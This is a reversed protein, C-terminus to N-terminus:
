VVGLRADAVYHFTIWGASDTVPGTGLNSSFPTGTIQDARTVLNYSQTGTTSASWYSAWTVDGSDTQNSGGGGSDHYVLNATVTASTNLTKTSWLVTSPVACKTQKFNFGFSRQYFLCPLASSGGTDVSAGQTFNLSDALTNLGTAVGPAYSREYYYQCERLVQDKTQPAPRTAIDGGVLSCYDLTVASALSLQNFSIVIAIFTATTKGTTATADWGNFSFETNSTTLTFHADGLSDRSVKNWTGNGVTPVGATLASVLSHYTAAKIDPLSADTTWYLNVYGNITGTSIAGKLAIANRQSLIERAQEVPLYQILAFQTAVAATTVLGKTTSSRSFTLSSDVSQFAITQDWVYNSTNVGTAFPAAITDGLPQAPNLPFDWGVLYSPIPKFELQPKYYHFLHDVQRDVTEQLFETQSSANQVSVLQVSTLKILSGLPLTIDLTSYGTPAADSSTVPTINITGQITSYLNNTTTSSTVIPFSSGNSQTYTLTLSLASSGTSAALVSGNVFGNAFLRPTENFKQRLKMSTISAGSQIALAYPPNSIVNADSIDLQQLTITDTGTTILSWGPAIQTETNTGSVSLTFTSAGINPSFLVKVFQPNSIANESGEFFDTPNTNGEVNPPWASRTEQLVNGSSKIELYYLEITGNSSAPTGDYPWLYPIFDTGLYQPTGVNSLTITNGIDVFIYSNDPQQQQIYVSKPTTTQDKYYTITGGALPTGDTKNVFYQQISPQAIYAPDPYSM